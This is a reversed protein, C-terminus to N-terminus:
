HFGVKYVRPEAPEIGNEIAYQRIYEQRNSDGPYIGTSRWILRVLTDMPACETYEDALLRDSFHQTVAVNLYYDM